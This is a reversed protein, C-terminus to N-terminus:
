RVPLGGMSPRTPPGPKVSYGEKGLAGVLSGAGGHRGFPANAIDCRIRIIPRSSTSCLHRRLREKGLTRKQAQTNPRAAGVARATQRRGSGVRRRYGPGPPPTARLAGDLRANQRIPPTEAGFIQRAAPNGICRCARLPRDSILMSVM